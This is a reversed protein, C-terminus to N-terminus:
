GAVRAVPNSWAGETTGVAKVRFWYKKGGELGPVTVQSKTSVYAGPWGSAAAPDLTRQTLYSKARPVRDWALDIEGAHDGQTASVAAPAALEATHRAAPQRVNFGATEIKADDGLSKDEVHSALRTLVDDLESEKEDQMATAAKAVQRKTLADAAANELTKAADSLAAPTPDPTPFRPPM